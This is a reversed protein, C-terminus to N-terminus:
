QKTEKTILKDVREQEIQNLKNQLISILDKCEHFDKIALLKGIEVFIEEWTPVIVTDRHGYGFPSNNIRLNFAKGFETRRDNDEDMVTNYFQKFKALEIVLEEKTPKPTKMNKNVKNIKIVANKATRRSKGEQIPAIKM